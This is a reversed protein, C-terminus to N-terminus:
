ILGHEIAKLVARTRDRVQLKALIFSMQNRVTGMSKHIADAIEKNSYGAAVLRLVQVEGTTLAEIVETSKSRVFDKNELIQNTVAPQIWLGGAVITDIAKILVELSVDKRLYGKAGLEMCKLVLDHEDFTTLILTPLVISQEQMAALVELGNMNPMRIDLLMIDPQNEEIAEIVGIGDDLQAAVEIHGSLQLLSCLGMKVLNQDDVLLLQISM